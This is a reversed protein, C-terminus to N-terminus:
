AVGAIARYYLSDPVEGKAVLGFRVRLLNSLKVQWYGVRIRAGAVPAAAQTHIVLYDLAPVFCDWPAGDGEVFAAGNVGLYNVDDDRDISVIIAGAGEVAVERLILCCDPGAESAYITDLVADAVTVDVHYTREVAALVRNEYTREIQASMPIPAIGKDLLDRVDTRELAEQEEPTLQTIGRLLKEAVTLRHMGVTYNLQYGAVPAGTANNTRLQLRDKAPLDLGRLERVGAPLVDTWGQDALAPLTKNDYSFDVAVAANQTAAVRSIHAMWRPTATANLGQVGFQTVWGAALAVPGATYPLREHWYRARRALDQSFTNVTGM